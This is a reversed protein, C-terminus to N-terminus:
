SWFEQKTRKQLILRERLLEKQENIKNRVESLQRETNEQLKNFKKMIIKFEKDTINFYETDKLRDGLFNDNEKQFVTNCPNKYYKMFHTEAM